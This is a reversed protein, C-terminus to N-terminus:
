TERGLKKRLHAEVPKMGAEFDIRFVDEDSMLDYLIDRKTRLIQKYEDALAGLDRYHADLHLRVYSYLERQLAKLVAVKESLEKGWVADAEQLLADLENELPQHKEWRRVYALITGQQRIQDPNMSKAETEDIKMEANYMAPHRVAFLSERYRYLAILIRRALDNDAAWLSQNKWANLGKFAAIAGGAAAAAMVANALASWQEAGWTM